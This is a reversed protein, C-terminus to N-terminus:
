HAFEAITTFADAPVSGMYNDIQADQQAVQRANAEDILAQYTARRTPGNNDPGPITELEEALRAIENKQEQAPQACFTDIDMIQSLTAM